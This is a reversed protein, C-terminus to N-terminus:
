AIKKKIIPVAQGQVKALNYLLLQNSNTSKEINEINRESFTGGDAGVVKRFVDLRIGM